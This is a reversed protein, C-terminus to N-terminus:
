LFIKLFMHICEMKKHQLNNKYFLFDCFFFNINYIKTQRHIQIRYHAKRCHLLWENKALSLGNLFKIILLFFHPISVCLLMCVFISSIRFLIQAIKYLQLGRQSRNSTIRHNYMNYIMKFSRVQVSSVHLVIYVNIYYM